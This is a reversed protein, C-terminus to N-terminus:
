TTNCCHYRYDHFGYGWLGGVAVGIGLVKRDEAYKLKM